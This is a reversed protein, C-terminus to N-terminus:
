TNAPCQCEGEGWWEMLYNDGKNLDYIDGSEESESVQMNYPLPDSLASFHLIHNM